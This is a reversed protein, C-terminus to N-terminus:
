FVLGLVETLSDVVFDAGMLDEWVRRKVLVAKMGAAKAGLVDTYPKDGVFLASGPEVGLRQACLLFPKPDPKTRRTDEGAVVVADFYGFIPSSTLRWRKINRWGDTDTVVGMPVGGRKLADLVKLTDDFLRTNNKFSLWYALTARLELHRNLEFGLRRALTRWWEDRNYRQYRNMEESIRSIDEVLQEVGVRGDVESSLLRAVRRFAEAKGPGTDVLTDDFDFLVASYKAM